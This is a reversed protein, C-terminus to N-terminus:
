TETSLASLLASEAESFELGRRKMVARAVQFAKRLLYPRFGEPGGWSFHPAYRPMYGGGFLNCFVGIVTGTNFMTNIGAKSHDGMILGIFQRGTTTYRGESMDYLDVIGYDNRLNSTNTDAGLNCWRGLYSNGLYGDHGKNSYSHLVSAHIEGGAKCWPGIVSQDVRAAMKVQAHAGISVPGRLIAGEMVTANEGILVPGASANLIAGAHVRSGPALYIQEPAELIAHPSVHAGTHEGLSFSAADEVIRPGIADLVDWVRALMYPAGLDETPADQNLNGGAPRW